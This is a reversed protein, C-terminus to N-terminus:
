EPTPCTTPLDAAAADPEVGQFNVPGNTGEFQVSIITDARLGTGFFGLSLTAALTYRRLNQM